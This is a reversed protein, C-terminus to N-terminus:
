RDVLATWRDKIVRLRRQITRESCELESAIEEISHGALIMRAIRILDPQILGDILEEFLEVDEATPEKSILEEILPEPSNAGGRRERDEQRNRRIAKDRTMRLLVLWLSDRNLANLSDGAVVKGYLADFVSVLVDDADNVRKAKSTLKKRAVACLREFYTEWLKAIAANKKEEDGSKLEDILRTISLQYESLM